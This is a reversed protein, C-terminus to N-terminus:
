ARGEVHTDVVKEGVETGVLPAFSYQRIEHGKWALVALLSMGLTSLIAMTGFTWAPGNWQAWDIIFFPVAVGLALRWAWLVTFTEFAYDRFNEALYNNVIPM